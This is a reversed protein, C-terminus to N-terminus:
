SQSAVTLSMEDGEIMTLASRADCDAKSLQYDIVQARRRAIVILLAM